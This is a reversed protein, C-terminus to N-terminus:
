DFLEPGRERDRQKAASWQALNNAADSNSALLLKYLGAEGVRHVYRTEVVHKWSLKRLQDMYLNQIGRYLEPSQAETKRAEWLQMWAETGLFRNLAEINPQLAARDYALMRRLAMDGPFLVCFDVSQHGHMKLARVTEFPLQNPKEIDAFVFAYAKEHVRHMIPHAVENASENFFEIRAHPVLCRGNTCYNAVRQRLASDAVSDLNVLMAHTFGIDPDSQANTRLARLAAGEWEKGDDDINVGPGAFLDVYFRQRKKKTAQLAPPLYEDIFSLKDQAWPGNRRAPLRDNALAYEEDKSRRPSM